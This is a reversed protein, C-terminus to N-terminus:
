NIYIILLCNLSNMVEKKESTSGKEKKDKKAKKAAKDSGSKDSDSSDDSIYEKSKFKIGAMAKGANGSSAKKETDEKTSSEGPSTVQPVYSEMAKKYDEKSKEAKEEWKTKDKLVGWMEGGKKAIETVSIGPNEGKISERNENLWLM